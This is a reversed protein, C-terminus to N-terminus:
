IVRTVIAAFTAMGIFMLAIYVALVPTNMRDRLATDTM